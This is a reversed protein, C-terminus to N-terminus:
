ALRMNLYEVHDDGHRNILKEVTSSKQVALKGPEKEAEAAQHWAAIKSEDPTPLKARIETELDKLMGAYQAELTRGKDSLETLETKKPAAEGPQPILMLGTALTIACTTVGAKLFGAKHNHASSIIPITKFLKMITTARTSSSVRSTTARQLRRFLRQARQGHRQPEQRSCEMLHPSESGAAPPEPQGKSKARGKQNSWIQDAVAEPDFEAMRKRVHDAYRKALPHEDFKHVPVMSEISAGGRATKIV